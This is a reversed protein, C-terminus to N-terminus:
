KEITVYVMGGGGSIGCGRVFEPMTTYDTGTVVSTDHWFSHGGKTSGDSSVDHNGKEHYELASGNKSWRLETGADRDARSSRNGFSDLVSFGKGTQYDAGVFHGSDRLSGFVNESKGGAAGGIDVKVHYGAAEAQDIIQQVTRADDQLNMKFAFSASPTGASIASGVLGPADSVRSSQFRLSGDPNYIYRRVTDFNDYKEWDSTDGAIMSAWNNTNLTDGTRRGYDLTFLYIGFSDVVSHVGAGLIFANTMSCYSCANALAYTNGRSEFWGFLPNFQNFLFYPKGSEDYYVDFYNADPNILGDASLLDLSSSTLGELGKNTKDITLMGRISAIDQIVGAEYESINGDKSNILRATDVSSM